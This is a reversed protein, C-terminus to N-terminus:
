CKVTEAAPPPAVYPEGALLSTYEGSMGKFEPAQILLERMHSLRVTKEGFLFKVMAEDREILALLLAHGGNMDAAYGAAILKKVFEIKGRRVAYTFARRRVVELEEEDLEACEAELHRDLAGVDEADVLRTFANPIFLPKLM